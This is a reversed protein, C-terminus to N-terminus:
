FMKGYTRADSEFAGNGEEKSRLRKTHIGSGAAASAYTM